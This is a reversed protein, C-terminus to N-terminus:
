ALRTGATEGPCRPPRGPCGTAAGSRTETAVETFRSRMTVVPTSVPSEAASTAFRTLEPWTLRVWSCGARDILAIKRVFRKVLNLAM